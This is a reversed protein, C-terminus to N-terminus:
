CAWTHADAVFEDPAAPVVCFENGSPDLMVWWDQVQHKRSAGLRELRRVEAEVDDTAIDLHLRSKATKPEPVAQLVIRLGGPRAKLAAYPPQEEAAVETGLAHAWFRAGTELDNCDIVISQLKSRHM